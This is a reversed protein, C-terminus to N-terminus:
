HASVSRIDSLRLRQSGIILQQEGNANEIGSVLGSVLTSAQIASGTRDLATVKITYVGDPALTGGALRGDWVLVHAGAGTEGKTEFVKKGSADTVTLTTAAAAKPLTYQWSAVGNGLNTTAGDATVDKGIYSVINAAQSTQYSALLQELNRNTAISQEVGSFQVLQATFDKSDLPSLPDQHRLQATLLNLFSDFNKALSTGAKVAASGVTAATIPDIM